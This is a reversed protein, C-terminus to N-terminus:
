QKRRRVTYNSVGAICGVQMVGQRERTFPCFEFNGYVEDDFDGIKVDLEAPLSTGDRIGLMRKTGTIWVRRTPNGNWNSLRGHVTLCSGIM